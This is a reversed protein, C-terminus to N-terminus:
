TFALPRGAQLCPRSSACGVTAAFFAQGSEITPEPAASTSITKGSCLGSVALPGITRKLPPTWPPVVAEEDVGVDRDRGRRRDDDRNLDALDM